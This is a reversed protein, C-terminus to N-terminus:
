HPMQISSHLHLEINACAQNMHQQKGQDHKNAKM